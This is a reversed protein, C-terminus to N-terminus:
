PDPLTEIIFELKPLNCPVLIELFMLYYSQLLIIAQVYIFLFHTM